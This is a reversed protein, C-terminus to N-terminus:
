VVCDYPLGARRLAFAAQGIQRRKVELVICDDVIMLGWTVVGHRKLLGEVQRASYGCARPVFFTASPGHRLGQVIAWLPRVWDPASGIRLLTDVWDDM